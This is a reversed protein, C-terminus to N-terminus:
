FIFIRNYYKMKRYIEFSERTLFGIIDTNVTRKKIKKQDKKFSLFVFALKSM